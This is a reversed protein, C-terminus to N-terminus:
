GVAGMFAVSAAAATSMAMMLMKDAEAPQDGCCHGPPLQAQAVSIELPRPMQGSLNLHFGVDPRLPSPLHFRPQAHALQLHSVPLFLYPIPPQPAGRSSLSSFPRQTPGASNHPKCQTM